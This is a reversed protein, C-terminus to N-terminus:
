WPFAGATATEASVLGLLIGMLIGMLVRREGAGDQGLVLGDEQRQQDVAGAGERRVANGDGVAEVVVEIEDVLAVAADAVADLQDPLLALGLVLGVEAHLAVLPHLALVAAGHQHVREASADGVLEDGLGRDVLDDDV